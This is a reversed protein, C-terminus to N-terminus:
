VMLPAPSAHFILVTRDLRLLTLVTPRLLVDLTATSTSLQGAPVYEKNFECVHLAQGCPFYELVTNALLASVHRDQSDPLYELAVPAELLM